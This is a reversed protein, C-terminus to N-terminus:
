VMDVAEMDGEIWMRHWYIFNIIIWPVQKRNIYRTLATANFYDTDKLFSDAVRIFHKHMHDEYWENVPLQFGQKPRNIIDPPLIDKIAQKLIYKTENTKIKSKQSLSLAFEVLRHDLFPVRGELSVAMNLKDLRMLLLEPLRIKLDIYTMWALPDPLFCRNNFRDKYDSIIQPTAEYTLKNLRPSLIARKAYERYSIAGGWFIENHYFTHCRDYTGWGKGLLRSALYSSALMPARKIKGFFTDAESYDKLATLWSPYGCFLEDSGEGVQCVSVGNDKALKSVFYVPVCVSDAIPEDQHFVLKPLFSIADQPSIIVEHHNTKFLKAIRNSWSLENYAPADKFGISFTNVPRDLFRCMMAVNLSSDIGGSLFAGFPVDSIMRRKTADQFLNVIEETIDEESRALSENNRKAFMDWYEVTKIQSPEHIVMYHGSEVKSIGEFLTAPPPVCHFSLYHGFAELNVKRPIGPYQLIAKIESAFVLKPGLFCYYLPKIGVRDRALIIRSKSQDWIAFAFMGIFRDLSKMGWQEYAHIIVETDTKSLFRHGYKELETRIEEFNYIEGNFTIWITGDENCMPQRGAATLDIISLRRHAFGINFNSHSKGTGFLEECTRFQVYRNSHSKGNGALLVAGFDDPGRHLMSDRMNLLDTASVSNGSFDVIGAIGCM